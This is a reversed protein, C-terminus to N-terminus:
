CQWQRNPRRWARCWNESAASSRRCAGRPLDSRKGPRAPCRGQHPCTARSSQLEREAAVPQRARSLRSASSRWPAWIPARSCRGSLAWGDPWGRRRRDPLSQDQRHSWRNPAAGFRGSSRHGRHLSREETSGYEQIEPGGWWVRATPPWPRQRAAWAWSGVSAAM